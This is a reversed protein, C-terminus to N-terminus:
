FQEVNSLDDRVVLSGKSAPLSVPGSTPWTRSRRRPTGREEWGEGRKLPEITQIWAASIESFPRFLAQPGRWPAPIGASRHPGESARTEADWGKHRDTVPSPDEGTICHSGAHRSAVQAAPSLSLSLPVLHLSHCEHSVRPMAHCPMAHCPM